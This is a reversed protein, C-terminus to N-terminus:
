ASRRRKKIRQVHARVEAQKGVGTTRGAAIDRHAEAIRQQMDAHLFWVQDRPVYAAAIIEVTGSEGLEILVVDGEAVGLHKRVNESLTVRGKDGVTASVTRTKRAM